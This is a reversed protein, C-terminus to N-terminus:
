RPPDAALLAKRKQREDLMWYGTDLMRTWRSQDRVAQWWGLMYFLFRDCFVIHVTKEKVKELEQAKSSEWFDAKGFSANM